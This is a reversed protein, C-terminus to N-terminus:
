GSMWLIKGRRYSALNWPDPLDFGDLLEEASQSFWLNCGDQSIKDALFQILKADLLANGDEDFFVPIPGGLDNDPFVGIRVPKLFDMFEIEEGNLLSPYM